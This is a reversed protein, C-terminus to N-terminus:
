RPGTQHRIFEGMASVLTAIREGLSDIREGLRRDAERSEEALVKIRDDTDAAKLTLENLRVGV